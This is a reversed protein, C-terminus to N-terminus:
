KTVVSTGIMGNGVGYWWSTDRGKSSFAQRFDTFGDFSHMRYSIWSACHDGQCSGTEEIYRHDLITEIHTSGGDLSYGTTTEMEPTSMGISVSLNATCPMMILALIALAKLM